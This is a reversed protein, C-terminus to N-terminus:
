CLAPSNTLRDHIAAAVAEEVSTRTGASWAQQFQIPSLSKRVPEVTEDFLQQDERSLILGATIWMTEACGFLFAAQEYDATDRAVEAIAFLTLAISARNGIEQKRLLSERYLPLAMGHGDLERVAAGLNHLTTAIGVADNLQRFTKLSEAFLTRATVYDKLDLAIVGLNGAVSAVKALDGLGRYLTLSEDYFAKVANADGMSRAVTGLNSLNAGVGWLDGIKRCLLLSREFYSRAEAYQSLAMALRGHCNLSEALGAPDGLANYLTLSEQLAGHATTYDNQQSAILGLGNLAKARSHLSCERCDSLVTNLWYLGESLAGQMSWFRWLAGALRLREEAGSRSALAARFNDHEVALKRTWEGQEKRTLYPEAEEALRVFYDQHLRQMTEAQGAALLKESAYERVTELLRYRNMEAQEEVLVLSARELNSLTEFLDPGVEAGPCVAELAHLTWGGAFVSLHLLLTQEPQPLLAYSWDILATLTRQREDRTVDGGKLDRFSRELRTAIARASLVNVKAAALEIGFPMGELRRCIRAIDNANASSLAFDPKAAQARDVFLRIAEFRAVEELALRPKPEPVTLPPIRWTTEGGCRLAQRSTALITLDPCATLLSEVLRACPVAVHECNDLVLLVSRPRLFDTLAAEIEKGETQKVGLATAVAQGVLESGPPLAALEVLRIGHEVEETLEAAIQLALRTKGVGGAGM